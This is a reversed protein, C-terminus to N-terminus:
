CLIDPAGHPLWWCSLGDLCFRPCVECTPFLGRTVVCDLCPGHSPAQPNQALLELLGPEDQPRGGSLPVQGEVSPGPGAAAPPGRCQLPLASFSPQRLPPPDSLLITRPLCSGSQVRM